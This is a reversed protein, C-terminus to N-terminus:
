GALILFSGDASAEEASALEPVFDTQNSAASCAAALAATKEATTPAYIRDVRPALDVLLLGAMNDSGEAVVTEPLELSLTVGSEALAADMEELFTMLNEAKMTEGYDIKDLKGVTPYTVDTLLIEDFGLAALEKALACLYERAAPKGPDLWNANVGDYFLYGGTNKLGMTEVNAEAARPDLFCSMRAITYQDSGTAAALADATDSATSVAGHVAAASAFCVRGEADKVTIVAANCGPVAAAARQSEQWAAASLPAASVTVAGVRAPKEPEQITLNLPEEDEPPTEPATQTQNEPLKLHPRGSEDYVLYERSLIFGVSALIVLVLVVALAIKGAPGRGRYSHYGRPGAM